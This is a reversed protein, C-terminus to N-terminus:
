GSDLAAFDGDGGLAGENEVVSIVILVLLM